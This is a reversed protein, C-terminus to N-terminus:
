LSCRAQCVLGSLSLEGAQGSGTTPRRTVQFTILLKRAFLDITERSSFIEPVRDTVALEWHGIDFVFGLLVFIWGWGGM